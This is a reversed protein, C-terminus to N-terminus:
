GLNKEDLSENPADFVTGGADMTQEEIPM